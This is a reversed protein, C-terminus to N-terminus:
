LCQHDALLWRAQSAIMKPIRDILGVRHFEEFGKLIGRLNGGASVPVIVYDPPEFDM